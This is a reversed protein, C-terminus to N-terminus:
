LLSGDIYKKTLINNTSVFIKREMYIQNLAGTGNTLTINWLGLQDATFTYSAFGDATSTPALFDEADIAANEYVVTNDPAAIQVDLDALAIVDDQAGFVWNVTLDTDLLYM